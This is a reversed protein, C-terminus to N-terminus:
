FVIEEKCEDFFILGCMIYQRFCSWMVSAHFTALNERCNTNLQILMRSNICQKEFLYPPM